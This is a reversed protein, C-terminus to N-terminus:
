NEEWLKLMKELDKKFFSVATFWKNKKRRYV